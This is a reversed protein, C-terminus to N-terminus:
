PSSGRRKSAERTPHPPVPLAQIKGSLRLKLAPQAFRALGVNDSTPNFKEKNRLDRSSLACSPPCSFNGVSFVAAQSACNRHGTTDASPHAPFAQSTFKRCIPYPLRAAPTRAPPTAHTVPSDTYGPALPPTAGPSVPLRGGGPLRIPKLKALTPFSRQPLESARECM